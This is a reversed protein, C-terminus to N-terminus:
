DEKLLDEPLEDLKKDLVRRREYHDNWGEVGGKNKERAAKAAKAVEILIHITEFIKESDKWHMIAYTHKGSGERRVDIDELEQLSRIM